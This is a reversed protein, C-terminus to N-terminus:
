TGARGAGGPGRRGGSAGRARAARLRRALRDRVPDPRLRARPPATRTPRPSSRPRGALVVLLGLRSQLEDRLNGLLVAAAMGAASSIVSFTVLRGDVFSLAAGLVWVAAPAGFPFRRRFLLVLVLVAAGAGRVLADDDAREPRCGARARDRARDRGGRRRGPRRLRVTRALSRVGNFTSWGGRHRRRGLYSVSDDPPRRRARPRRLEPGHLALGAAAPADTADDLLSGFSTLLHM